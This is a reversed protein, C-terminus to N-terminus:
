INKVIRKLGTLIHDENLIKYENLNTYSSIGINFKKPSIFGIQEIFGSNGSIRLQDKRPRGGEVRDRATNYNFNFGFKDLVDCLFHGVNSNECDLSIYRIAGTKSNKDFSGRGDFMGVIFSRQVDKSSEFLVKKIEPIFDELSSNIDTKFFTGFGQLRRFKGSDLGNTKITNSMLTQKNLKESIKKVYSFHEELEEPTVQGSNHRVPAIWYKVNNCIVSENAAFISGLFYANENILYKSGMEININLLKDM